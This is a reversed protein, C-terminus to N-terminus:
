FTATVKSERYQSGATRKGVQPMHDEWAYAMTVEASFDKGEAKGAPQEDARMGTALLTMLGVVIIMQKFM